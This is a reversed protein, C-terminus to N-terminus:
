PNPDGPTPYRQMTWKAPIAVQDVIPYQPVMGDKIELFAIRSGNPSWWFSRMEGRTFLEEM